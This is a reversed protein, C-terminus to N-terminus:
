YSPQGPKFSGMKGITQKRNAKPMANATPSYMPTLDWRKPFIIISKVTQAPDEREAHYDVELFMLGALLM